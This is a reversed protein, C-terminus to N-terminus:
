LADLDRLPVRVGLLRKSLCHLAIAGGGAKQQFPLTEYSLTREMASVISGSLTRDEPIVAALQLGSEDIVADLDSFEEMEWFRRRHFRNLVLRPDRMQRGAESTRLRDCNTISLKDPTSVLLTRSATSVAPLFCPSKAPVDLLIQDFEASLSTLWTTLQSAKPLEDLRSPPQALFLGEVTESPVIVDSLDCREQAADGLHYPSLPSAALFFSIDGCLPNLDLLLTEQQRLALACGLGATILSKGVGGKAASLVTVNALM